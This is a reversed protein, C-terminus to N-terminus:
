LGSQSRSAPEWLKIVGGNDCSVLTSTSYHISKISQNHGSLTALPEDITRDGETEPVSFIHLNPRTTRWNYTTPASAAVVLEDDEGAFCCVLNDKLNNASLQVNGVNDLQQQENPVSYVVPFYGHLQSFSETCLLRTGKRDFQVTYSSSNSFAHVVRRQLYM